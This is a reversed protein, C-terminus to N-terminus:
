SNKRFIKYIKEANHVGYNNKVFERCNSSMKKLVSRNRNIEILKEAIEKPNPDILFGASLPLTEKSVKKESSMAIKSAIVPVGCLLSEITNLSIYYVDCVGWSIDSANIYLPLNENKIVGFYLINRDRKQLQEIKTKFPGNGIFLFLFDQNNRLRRAVNLVLEVRKIESLSTAFLFIFKEQPLKLEMRCKEQNIPFFTVKDAWNRIILIKDDSIGIQIMENKVDLSNVLIYDAKKFFSSAINKFIVSQNLNIVVHLHIVLKKRFIMSLISGTAGAFIGGVTYILDIKNTRLFWFGRILFHFFHFFNVIWLQLHILFIRLSNPLKKLEYNILRDFRNPNVLNSRFIRINEEELVKPLPNKTQAPQFTLVDVLIDKKKQIFKLFNQIYTETGGVDPPFHKTLLLIKLKKQKIM